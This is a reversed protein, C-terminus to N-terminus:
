WQAGQGAPFAGSFWRPGIRFMEMLAAPVPSSSALLGAADTRFVRVTTQGRTAHRWATVRGPVAGDVEWALVIVPTDIPEGPAPEAAAAPAIILRDPPHPLQRCLELGAEVVAGAAMVVVPVPRGPGCLEPGADDPVTVRGDVAPGMREAWARYAAGVDPRAILFVMRVLPGAPSPLPVATIM